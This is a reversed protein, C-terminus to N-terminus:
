EAPTGAEGAATSKAAGATAMAEEATRDALVSLPEGTERAQEFLRRTTDYIRGVHERALKEDYGGDEYAINIIGGANALYDPVYVIDRRALEAEIEPSELQNNAAGCIARCRLEAARESNIAGGLACPAYVDCEVRHIEDPAVVEAEVEALLSSVADGSVDAVSLRAGREHCLRALTHGVKGVGSVAVHLGDFGDKGFLAEATAEMARVVGYATVPSPDGSGGLERSRGAVHPTFRGIYDMDDQSTGVDEATVYSGGFGEVFRAYDELLRPTKGAPDGLIVAKGGGFALGALAAKYSMAKSLRLVDALGAAFSEYPFFRTGGLAPGLATSHVAIIARLGSARRWTAAVHEHELDLPIEEDPAPRTM